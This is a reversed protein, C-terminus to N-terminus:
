LIFGQAKLLDKSVRHNIALSVMLPSRYGKVQNDSDIYKFHNSPLGKEEATVKMQYKSSVFIITPKAAYLAKFEELNM